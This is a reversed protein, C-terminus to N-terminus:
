LSVTLEGTELLNSLFSMLRYDAIYISNQKKAQEINEPLDQLESEDGDDEILRKWLALHEEDFPMEFDNCGHNAFENSAQRLLRALTKNLSM